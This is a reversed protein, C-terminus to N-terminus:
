LEISFTDAPVMKLYDHIFVVCRKRSPYAKYPTCIVEGILDNLEEALFADSLGGEYDEKHDIFYATRDNYKWFTIRATDAARSFLRKRVTDQLVYTKLEQSLHAKDPTSNVVLVKEYYFLGSAEKSISKKTKMYSNAPLFIYKGAPRNSQCSVLFLMLIGFCSNRFILM